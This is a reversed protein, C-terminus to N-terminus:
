RSALLRDMIPWLALPNEVHANHGTAPLVVGDPDVARLQDPPCMPDREGAALITTAKAMALLAPVDPAGVGFAKQDLAVRWGGPGEVVGAAARPSDPPVLGVLGSVKLWRDVAEERTAFVREPRAAAEAAKALEADSWNLKIGVGCAATVDLGYTGDALMLALVGGLSHGLVVVQRGSPVVAAVSAAMSAFTYEDLRPSRGHGPLDPAFTEGPWNRELLDHWVEGTAGLGHLLLLAPDGGFDHRALHLNTVGLDHRM